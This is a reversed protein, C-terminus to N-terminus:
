SISISCVRFCSPSNSSPAMGVTTSSRAKIAQIVDNHVLRQLSHQGLSALPGLSRNLLRAGIDADGRLAGIFVFRTQAFRLQGYELSQVIAALLRDLGTGGGHGLGAFAGLLLNRLGLSSSSCSTEAARAVRSVSLSRMALWIM